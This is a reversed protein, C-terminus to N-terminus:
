ERMRVTHHDARNRSMSITIGIHSPHGPRHSGCEREREQAGRGVRGRARRASPVRMSRARTVRSFQLAPAPSTPHLHTLTSPCWVGHTVTLGMM